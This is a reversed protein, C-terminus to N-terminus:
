CKQYLSTGAHHCQPTKDESSTAKHVNLGKLPDGSGDERQAGGPGPSGGSGRNKGYYPASQGGPGPASPMAGGTAPNYRPPMPGGPGEGYEAGAAVGAHVLMGLLAGCACGIMSRSAM